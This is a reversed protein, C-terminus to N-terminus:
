LLKLFVALRGRAARALGLDELLRLFAVVVDALDAVGVVGALRDGDARAPALHAVLPLDLLRRGDLSSARSAHHTIDSAHPRESVQGSKVVRPPSHAADRM